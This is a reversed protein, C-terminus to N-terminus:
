FYYLIAGNKDLIAFIIERVRGKQLDKCENLVKCGEGWCAADRMVEIHQRHVTKLLGSMQFFVTVM